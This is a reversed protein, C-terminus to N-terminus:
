APSSATVTYAGATINSTFATASAVGSSLTAVVTTVTSNAFTGSAGSAPATFTVNTGPVLVPNGHADEVTASLTTAFTTGVTASQGGGASVAVQTAPGALNTETFNATSLGATAAAM